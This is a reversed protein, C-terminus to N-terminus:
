SSSLGRVNAPNGPAADSNSTRQAGTSFFAELRLCDRGAEKAEYLMNDAAAYVRDPTLRDLTGGSWWGAGFSATLMGAPNREHAINLNRVISRLKEVFQTAAEPTPANFLVGFEEGGVRFLVDSSNQLQAKIAQAIARLADDGAQHGHRENYNKFYDLDFICFALPERDQRHTLTAGCFATFHRRNFAGTLEDTIALEHLRRNASALEETRQNVQQALQANLAEQAERARREAEIKQAKLTNMSDALGLALLLAELASGIQVGWSTFWNTPLVAIIQLIYSSAGISVIAFAIVFFKAQRSGQLLLWIATAITTVAMSIGAIHGLGAGLAYHGMLAPVIVLMNMAVLAINLQLLWRPVLERMRLYVIAFLGITGFTLAAGVTLIDNNFAPSNPWFYQFSYGRFTFSWFLFSSIYLVYLGFACKRTAIFILLNYLALALLGGHFITFVLDETEAAKFFEQAGFMRLPMAEFLGDHSQLRVYLEVREYPALTVPLAFNHTPVARSAHPLRDGDITETIRQGGDRLVFWHVHDQRPNGLDIIQQVSQGTDNAVNWRVWWVSKSFGFVLADGPGPQWAHAKGRIDNLTLSATPDELIDTFPAIPAGREHGVIHLTTGRPSISQAHSAGILWCGLCVLALLQPSHRAIFRMSSERLGLQNDAYIGRAQTAAWCALRASCRLANLPNAAFTHQQPPHAACEHSLMAAPQPIHPLQRLGVICLLAFSDQM